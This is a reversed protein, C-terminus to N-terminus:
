KKKIWLEPNLKSEDKWIEFHLYHSNSIDTNNSENVNAIQSNSDIIEGEKVIINKLNGYVTFYGEGHQIMVFNGYGRLYSVVSIDGDLVSYVPANKKTQINIGINETITNLETNVKKGFKTIVKGETPWNLKGKMKAFNGSTSKNKRAREKALIEEREKAKKSDTILKKIINEIDTIQNKNNNLNETLLNKNNEIEKIKKLKNKKDSDLNKHIKKAESLINKQNKKDKELKERENKLSVISKKIETNLRKEYELLVELYKYKNLAQNWDNSLIMDSLMDRKGNKFIHISRKKLKAKLTDLENEKEEIKELSNDILESINNLQQSLLAIQKERYSIKQNIMDISKSLNKKSSEISNIDKELKNISSELDKLLKNNSKIENQINTYSKDCLAFSIIIFLISYKIKQKM